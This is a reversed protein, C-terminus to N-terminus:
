KSRRAKAQADIKELLKIVCKGRRAQEDESISGQAHCIFDVIVVGKEEDFVVPYVRCGAPRFAYVDCQREQSNYFVCHGQRNRLLAYGEEDIRMFSKRSHGRKELRAIDEESLMM